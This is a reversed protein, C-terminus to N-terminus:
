QQKINNWKLELNMQLFVCNQIFSLSSYLFLHFFLLLHKKNLNRLNLYSRCM